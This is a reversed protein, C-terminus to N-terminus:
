LTGEKYEIGKSEFRRKKEAEDQLIMMSGTEDDYGYMQWPKLKSFQFNNEKVFKMFEEYSPYEHDEDMERLLDVQRKINMMHIEASVYVAANAAQTLPDNGLGNRTFVALDPNEALAKKKDVVEATTKQFFKDEDNQEVATQETEEAKQCSSFTLMCIPLALLLLRSM